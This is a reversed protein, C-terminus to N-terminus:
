STWEAGERLPDGGDLMLAVERLIANFVEAEKDMGAGGAASMAQAIGRVTCQIVSKEPDMALVARAMEPCRWVEGASEIAAVSSVVAGIEAETLIYIVADMESDSTEAASDCELQWLYEDSDHFNAM